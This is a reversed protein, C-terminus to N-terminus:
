DLSNNFIFAQTHTYTLAHASAGRWGSRWESVWMSNEDIGDSTANIQKEVQHQMM